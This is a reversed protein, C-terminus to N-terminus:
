RPAAPHEIVAEIQLADIDLFPDLAAKAQNGFCALQEAVHRHGIIKQEAAIGPAGVPGLDLTAQLVNVVAKWAQGLAPAL